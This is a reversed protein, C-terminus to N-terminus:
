RYANHSPEGEVSILSFSNILKLFPFCSKGLLDCIWLIGFLIGLLAQFCFEKLNGLNEWDNHIREAPSGFM